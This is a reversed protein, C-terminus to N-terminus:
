TSEKPPNLAATAADLAEPQHEDCVPVTQPGVAMVTLGDSGDHSRPATLKAHEQRVAAITVIECPRCLHPVTIMRGDNPREPWECGWWQDGTSDWPYEDRGPCRYPEREESM